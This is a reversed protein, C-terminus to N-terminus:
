QWLGAAIFDHMDNINIWGGKTYIVRVPHHEKLRNILDPIGQKEFDDQGAMEELLQRAIASSQESLMLLGIWEGCASVSSNGREIRELEINHNFFDNSYPRSCHAIDKSRSKDNLEADVIVTTMAPSELLDRLIHSRYLCDGYSIVVNGQLAERAQYLSYLEGTDEYRDNDYSRYAKSNLCEKKYGRVVSIDGINLARLEDVYADIIPKGNVPLMAKPREETLEGLADGRSAALIIAKCDAGGPLYKDEALQLEKAGQLRFIEAVPAIKDEQTKISSSNFIDEATKHMATVASRLIQNAWIVLSIDLEEFRHTPTSYYTTPVVVIPHRNAWEKMFAEIDDPMHKKSHVLIADAGALRYAEARRLAEKLGAGVIFAETRAVIVFDDDRQTDKGAKIKGCFEDLDALSQKEGEIFSNTKPFLKDEICVGAVQRSELKAVLRRLNNFNGYGTDGDLLIPVNTADSMFEVLELVQTWSAENNDRVGLSGSITLGSAWIGKFGVEEVIRASIGNHAECIFNLGPTTLMQKLQTTKKLPAHKENM